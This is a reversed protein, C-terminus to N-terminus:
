LAVDKLWHKNELYWAVSRSLGENIGIRPKWGLLREAKRIDARTDMVDAKHFAHNQIMAKKGLLKEIRAIIDLLSVSEKGGGLNVVEFGLPKGALITGEAIDDVYTFDRSQTGDGSLQIPKGEDVWKIFRFICMDPRGAPGYVTFYRVVSVDMGYLHHYSHAMAEAAKKSAAYPSIPTNVPLDEHFPMKEGAYLSSTSALVLKKVGNGRMLELLNLTGLGNTALYVYPNEM